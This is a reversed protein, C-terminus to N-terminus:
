SISYCEVYYQNMSMNQSSFLLFSDYKRGSGSTEKRLLSILTLVAEMKTTTWLELGGRKLRQATDKLICAFMKRPVCDLEESSSLFASFTDPYQNYQLSYALKQQYYKHIYRVQFGM